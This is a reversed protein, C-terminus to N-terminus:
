FKCTKLINLFKNIIEFFLTFLPKAECVDSWVGGSKKGFPLFTLFWFNFSDQFASGSAATRAARRFAAVVQRGAAGRVATGAAAVVWGTPARRVYRILLEMAIHILLLRRKGTVVIRVGNGCMVTCITCAGRM